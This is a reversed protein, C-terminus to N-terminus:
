KTTKKCLKWLWESACDRVPLTAHSSVSRPKIYSTKSAKHLFLAPIGKYGNSGQERHFRRHSGKCLM